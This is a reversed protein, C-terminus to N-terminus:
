HLNQDSRAARKDPLVFISFLSVWQKLFFQSKLNSDVHMIHLQDPTTLEFTCITNNRAQCGFEVNFWDSNSQILTNISNLNYTARSLKFAIQYMDLNRPSNTKVLEWNYPTTARAYDSTYLNQITQLPVPLKLPDLVWHIDESVTYVIHACFYTHFATCHTDIKVYNNQIGCRGDVIIIFVYWNECFQSCHIYEFYFTCDNCSKQKHNKHRLRCRM